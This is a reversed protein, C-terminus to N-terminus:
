SDGQTDNFTDVDAYATAMEEDTPAEEGEVMHVSLLYQTMVSGEKDPGRNNPTENDGRVPVRGISLEQFPEGPRAAM